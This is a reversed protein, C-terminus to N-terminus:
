WAAQRPQSAFRNRDGAAVEHHIPSPKLLPTPEVGARTLLMFVEAFNRTGAKMMINSRHAEVTRISIGMNYAIVKNAQGALLASCISIERPTLAKVRMEATHKVESAALQDTLLEHASQIATVLKEEDVPKLLFDLVGQKMLNIALVIDSDRSLAVVPWDIGGRRLHTVLDGASPAASIAFLIPRPELGGISALFSSAGTFTWTEIGAAGLRFALDRRDGADEEILYVTIQSQM